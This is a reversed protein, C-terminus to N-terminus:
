SFAFALGLLGKKATKLDNVVTPLDIMFEFGPITRTKGYKEHVLIYAIRKDCAYIKAM